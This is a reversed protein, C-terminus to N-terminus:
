QNSIYILSWVRVQQSDKFSGEWTANIYNWHFSIIPWFSEADTVGLPEIFFFDFLSELVPGKWQIKYILFLSWCLHKGKYKSFIKLVTKKKLSIRKITQKISRILITQYKQDFYSIKLVESFIMVHMRQFIFLWNKLSKLWLWLFRFSKFVIRAYM